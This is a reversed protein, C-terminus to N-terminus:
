RRGGGFFHMLLAFLGAGGVAFGVDIWVHSSGAPKWMSPEVVSVDADINKAKLSQSLQKAMEGYVRGEVTAPALSQALSAVAGQSRALEGANRVRILIARNTEQDAGLVDLGAIYNRARM